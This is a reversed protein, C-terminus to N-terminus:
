GIPFEGKTTGDWRRLGIVSGVLETPKGAIRVARSLQAPGVHRAMTVHPTWQGPLSHPMPGPQLYPLCIRSADAQIGLLDITPVLLRALSSGRGLSLVPGFRCGFPLRDTLGALQGDVAPDLREGVTLTAHPRAAPAQSPIGADRLADWIARVAEETDADFVLEVSGVM